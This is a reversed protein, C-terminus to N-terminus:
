REIHVHPNASYVITHSNGFETVLVFLGLYNKKKTIFIIPIFMDHPLDLDSKQDFVSFVVFQRSHIM